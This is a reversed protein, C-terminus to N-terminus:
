KECAFKWLLEDASGSAAVSWNASVSSEAVVEGKALNEAHSSVALVRARGDKCDYELHRKASLFKKGGVGTQATKYDFLDWMKVTTGQKRMSSPDAYSSFKENKGVVVWVEAAASASAVALLMALVAKRM